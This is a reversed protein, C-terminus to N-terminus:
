VRHKQALYLVNRLLIAVTLPGIGGPVPTFLSAKAAVAADADGVLMGGEESTGGDFVLVGDKVMAPVLLGPSGAGLVVIDATKTAELTNSDKTVITVKAGCTTAYAATPAGVLRGNGVVVVEKARWDVAFERSIVDIAGVVPPLLGETRGDYTMVDVDHTAPILPILDGTALHPFPFQIIIGDSEGVAHSVAAAVAALTVTAPLEIVRVSIGAEKARREKLALFKQTEFNPACTFVTLVPAATLQSTAVKIEGIIHAALARGDIIM